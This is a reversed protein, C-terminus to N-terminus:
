AASIPGGSCGTAGDRECTGGETVGVLAEALPGASDLPRPAGCGSAGAGEVIAAGDEAGDGADDLGDGRAREIEVADGGM